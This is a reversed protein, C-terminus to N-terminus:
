PTVDEPDDSGYYYPSGPCNSTMIRLVQTYMFRSVLPSYRSQMSNMRGYEATIDDNVSKLKQAFEERINIQEDTVNNENDARNLATREDDAITCINSRLDALRVLYARWYNDLKLQEIGTRLDRMWDLNSSPYVQASSRVQNYCNIDCDYITSLDVSTGVVSMGGQRDLKRLDDNTLVKHPDLEVKPKAPAAAPSQQKKANAAQSTRNGTANKQAVPPLIPQVQIEKNAAADHLNENTFVVPKSAPKPKNADTAANQAPAPAVAQKSDASSSSQGQQTQASVVGCTVPACLVLALMYRQISMTLGSRADMTVASRVRCM